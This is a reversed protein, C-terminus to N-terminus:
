CGGYAKEYIQIKLGGPAAIYTGRGFGWDEIEQSFEVGRASLEKVTKEIDDVYLSIEHKVETGPHFGIEGEAPTFILWNDGADFHELNLKDRFFARLEEAQPSYFM